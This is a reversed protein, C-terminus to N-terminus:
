GKLIDNARSLLLPEAASDAQRQIVQYAEEAGLFEQLEDRIGRLWGEAIIGASAAGHLRRLEALRTQAQRRGLVYLDSAASM